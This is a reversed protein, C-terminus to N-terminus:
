EARLARGVRLRRVSRIPAIAAVAGALLTAAVLSVVTTELSVVPHNAVSIASTIARWLERGVAVGIPVGVGVGITLLTAVASVIIAAAGGRSLGLARLTAIDRRNRREAVVLAHSLAIVVLLGTFLGVALPLAGLGELNAVDSPKRAKAGLLLARDGLGGALLQDLNHGPRARFGVIAETLEGAVDPSAHTRFGELTLLVSEDPADAGAIPVVVKGVVRLHAGDAVALTDGVSAELQRLLSAGLAAEDPSSPVRGELVTLAMDGRVSGFGVAPVTERVDDSTAVAIEGSAAISVASLDDDRALERAVTDSIAPAVSISAEWPQGYLREDRQLEDNSAVLVLATLAVVVAAAVGAIAGASIGGRRSARFALWIGLMLVAPLRGSITRQTRVHAAEVRQRAANWSLAAFVAVLLVFMVVGGVGLVLLDVDFGPDPEAKRGLGVPLLPSGVVALAIALLSAAVAAAVGAWLSALWRDRRTM